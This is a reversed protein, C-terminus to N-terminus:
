EKTASPTSILQQTENKAEEEDRGAREKPDAVDIWSWPLEEEMYVNIYWDIYDELLRPNNLQPNPPTFGFYRRYMPSYFFEGNATVFPTGRAPKRGEAVRTEDKQSLLAPASSPVEADIKAVVEPRKSIVSSATTPAGKVAAEERLTPTAVVKTQSPQKSLIDDLLRKIPRKRQPINKRSPMIRVQTIFLIKKNWPPEMATTKQDGVLGSTRSNRKERRTPLYLLRRHLREYETANLAIHVAMAENLRFFRNFHYRIFSPPYGNLLLIMEIHLREQDFAYVHSCLRVARLLAEYPINVHVHRPHDSSYPLIYPEAAPKHFISTKLMGNANDIKVDLFEVSFGVSYTIHIHKEDKKNMWELKSHIDDLSMNSTM